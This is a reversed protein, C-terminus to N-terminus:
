DFVGLDVIDLQAPYSVYVWVTKPSWPYLDGSRKKM